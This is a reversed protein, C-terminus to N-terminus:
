PCHLDHQWCQKGLRGLMKLSPRRPTADGTLPFLTPATVASGTTRITISVTRQRLFTMTLEFALVGCVLVGILLGARKMMAPNM